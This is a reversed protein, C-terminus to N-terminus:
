VDEGILFDFELGRQCSRGHEERLSEKPEELSKFPLSNFLQVPGSVSYEYSIEDDVKIGSVIYNVYQCPHEKSENLQLCADINSEVYIESWRSPLQPNGVILGHIKIQKGMIASVTEIYDMRPHRYRNNYGASVIMMNPLLDSFFKEYGDKKGNFAGHHPATMVMQQPKLMAKMLNNSYFWMSNVTFDGPLMCVCKGDLYAAYCISCSNEDNVVTLKIKNRPLVSGPPLVGLHVTGNLSGIECHMGKMYQIPKLAFEELNELINKASISYRNGGGVYVTEIACLDGNRIPGREKKPKFNIIYSAMTSFEKLNNLIVDKVMAAATPAQEGYQELGQKITNEIWEIVEDAGQESEISLEAESYWIEAEKKSEEEEEEKEEEEEAITLGINTKRTVLNFGAEITILRSIERCHLFITLSGLECQIVGLQHEKFCAMVYFEGELFLNRCKTAISETAKRSDLIYNNGDIIWPLSVKVEMSYEEFANFEKCFGFEFLVCEGTGLNDSISVPVNQIGPIYCYDFIDRVLCVPCLNKKASVLDKLLYDSTLLNIHDLDKHSLVVNDLYYSVNEPLRKAREEMLDRILAMQNQVTESSIEGGRSGCDVLDLRVMQGNEDYFAVLNCSGQGVALVHLEVRESM